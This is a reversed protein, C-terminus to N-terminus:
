QGAVAPLSVAFREPWAGGGGLMVYAEGPLGSRVKEIHERLLEPAIKVKIRFMLKERESRTEVERPTFQAEASIFSVQAPIVYQPVADLIIRAESGVLLRGIQATPLFITMYVDTLDLLTIVRGGSALVEGPEALRYQVRGERPATLTSDDIQTQILEAQAEAAEVARQTSALRARAAELAAKATDRETRRQDALQKSIHGKAVLAEARALEEEAFKLESQRQVIQARAEIVNEQAQAISARAAALSARLEATDMRALVQGAAVMDGENVLVEAVRGAYRTAVQVEEAEIRGNGSAIYDPLRDHNDRWWLYGASAAALAAVVAIM